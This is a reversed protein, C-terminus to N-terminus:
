GATVNGFVDDLRVTLDPFIACPFETPAEEKEEERGTWSDPPIRAWVNVLCFRGGDLVYQEVSRDTPSVIWYERVGYKEYVDRKHGRDYRATGPSLVEVVLDPAGFIGKDQVKDPDCVVMGDPVFHEDESLFLGNGDPFFECRKGRLYDRFLSAINYTIRNHSVRAPAMMVVKGDILEEWPQDCCSELKYALNGNM